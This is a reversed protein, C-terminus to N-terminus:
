TARAADDSAELLEKALLHNRRIGCRRFGNAIQAPVSCDCRAVTDCLIGRCRHQLARSTCCERRSTSCTLPSRSRPLCSLHLSHLDGPARGFLDGFRNCLDHQPRGMLLSCHAADGGRRNRNVDRAPSKLDQRAPWISKPACRKTEFRYGLLIFLLTSITIATIAPLTITTITTTPSAPAASCQRALITRKSTESAHRPSMSVSFM